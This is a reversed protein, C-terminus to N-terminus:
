FVADDIHFFSLAVDLFIDRSSIHSHFYILANARHGYKSSFFFFVFPLCLRQPSSLERTAAAM